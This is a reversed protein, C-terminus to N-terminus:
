PCRRREPFMWRCRFQHIYIVLMITMIWNITKQPLDFKKYRKKTSVLFAAGPPPTTRIQRKLGFLLM